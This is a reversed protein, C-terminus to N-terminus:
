DKEEGTINAYPNHHGRLGNDPRAVTSGAYDQITSVLGDFDEEPGLLDAAGYVFYRDVEYEEALGDLYDKRSEYGRDTYISM